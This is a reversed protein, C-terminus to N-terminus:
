KVNPGMFLIKGRKNEGKQTSLIYFYTGKSFQANQTKSGWLFRHTGSPLTGNFISTIKKGSADYISFSITVKHTTKVIFNVNEKFPNPYALVDFNEFHPKLSELVMVGTSLVECSSTIEYSGNEGGTVLVDGNPLLFTKHLFRIGNLSDTISWTETKPDFIECSSTFYGGVALVTSDPLLTLTFDDREYNMSGTPAWTETAPDFIECSNTSRTTTLGGAVLVRGDMLKVIAHGTRAISMSDTYSWTGTNPDYIECSSLRELNTPGTDGGAVLVRGDDLLISVLQRRQIHMSDTMSWTGTGPDYIECSKLNGGGTGGIVIVKGDGLLQASHWRRAEHLSDTFSWTGTSPDYIECTRTEYGSLGGAALVRGDQLLTLTFQSRAISMSDTLSWTQTTTDYIECSAMDTYGDNGGAVLVEGNNLVVGEHNSRAVNMSDTFTWGGYLPVTIFLSLICVVPNLIVRFKL